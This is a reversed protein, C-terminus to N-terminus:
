YEEPLLVCTSSRDAETIIWFTTGADSRYVSFLRSGVELAEENAKRDDECVEGWDGSLHRGLARLMEEQSVSQALGPTAVVVGSSFTRASKAPRSEAPAQTGVLDPPLGGFLTNADSLWDSLRKRRLFPHDKRPNAQADRYEEGWGQQVLSWLDAWLQKADHTQTGKESENNQDTSTGEQFLQPQLTATRRKM